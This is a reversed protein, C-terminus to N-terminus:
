VGKQIYNPSLNHVDTVLTADLNTPDIKYNEENIIKYDYDKIKELFESEEFFGDSIIESVNGAEVKILKGYVHNKKAKITVAYLGNTNFYGSALLSLSSIAYLKKNLTWALMKAVTVSVRLGTYSGPGTGVIVESFDKFTLNLKNLGIELEKLLNESHNNKGELFQEYIIKEDELFSFYLYKSATDLVLTRKSM